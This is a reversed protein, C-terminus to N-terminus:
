FPAIVHVCLSYCMGSSVACATAEKSRAGFVGAQLFQRHATLPVIATSDGSTNSCVKRTLQLESHARPWAALAVLLRQQSLSEGGPAAAAHRASALNRPRSVNGFTSDKPVIM